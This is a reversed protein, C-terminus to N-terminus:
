GERRDLWSQALTNFVKRVDESEIEEFAAAAFAAILLAKAKTEPIGRAKLYFLQNDDLEGSTAGHGCWVDDAYIELEPKADFEAGESLLLANASQQGDTKQADRAVIVKGQFIGRANEDMVCKYTERSQCAPVAHNIVLTTDVHQNDAIMYSGSTNAISNEGDFTVFGQNRVTKGGLTFTFDNLKAEAGLNAITNSLHIASKGDEQLRVRNLKANDGITIETVHNSVYAEDHGTHLEFVTLEAGAELVIANRTTITSPQDPATVFVLEVPKETKSQRAVSIIAGDSAYALNLADIVDDERLSFNVEDGNALTEVSIRDPLSSRAVDYVGNVFVIRSAAIDGFPSLGLLNDITADSTKGGIAPPYAQDVIRRLDTWKWEEVRRTPLGSQAVASAASKRIDGFGDPLNDLNAYVEEAATRPATKALPTM